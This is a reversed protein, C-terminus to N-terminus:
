VAGMNGAEHQAALIRNLAHELAAERSSQIRNRPPAGWASLAGDGRGPFGLQYAHDFKIGMLYTLLCGVPRGLQESGGQALLCPHRDAQLRHTHVQMRM